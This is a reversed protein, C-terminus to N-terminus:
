WCVVHIPRPAQDECIQCVIKNNYTWATSIGVRPQWGFFIVPVTYLDYICLDLLVSVFNSLGSMRGSLQTGVKFAEGCLILCLKPHKVHRAVMGDCWVRVGKAICEQVRVECSCFSMMLILISICRCYFKNLEVFGRLHTLRRRENRLWGTGIEDTCRGWGALWSGRM